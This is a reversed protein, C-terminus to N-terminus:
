AKQRRAVMAKLAAIAKGAADADAFRLSSIGFSHELWHDLSRPDDTCSYENWLRQILRVQDPTAMGDRRGYPGAAYTSEFGLQKLCRMMAAFGELDLESSSRCGAVEELLDRWDDDDLGLRKQAVHLLKLKNPYLKM